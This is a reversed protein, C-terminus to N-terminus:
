TAKRLGFTLSLNSNFGFRHREAVSQFNPYRRLCSKVGDMRGDMRFLLFM